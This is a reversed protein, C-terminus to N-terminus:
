SASATEATIAFIALSPQGANLRCKLTEIRGGSPLSYLLVQYHERAIDKVFLIARQTETAAANIRTADAILNARAVEYGNRLPVRREEGSEDRLQYEGIVDGSGGEVPFGTPITVNGLIHLRICDLGVPVAIETLESTLVLPRVGDEMVPVRFPVGAIVVEGRAWLRFKRGSGKWQDSMGAKAWYAAMSAELGAWAKRGGASESLPQLNIPRFQNQRNWPIQRL